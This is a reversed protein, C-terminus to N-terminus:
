VDGITTTTRWENTNTANGGQKCLFIYIDKDSSFHGITFHISELESLLSNWVTGHYFRIHNQVRYLCFLVKFNTTQRYRPDLHDLHQDGPVIILFNCYYISYLVASCWFHGRVVCISRCYETYCPICISHIACYLPGTVSINSRDLM